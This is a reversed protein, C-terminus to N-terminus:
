NHEKPSLEKMQGWNISVLGLSDNVPGMGHQDAHLILRTARLLWDEILSKSIEESAYLELYIPARFKRMPKHSHEVLLIERMKTAASNVDHFLTGGSESFERAEENWCWGYSNMLVYRPHEITGRNELTLIM